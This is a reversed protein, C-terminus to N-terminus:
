KVKRFLEAGAVKRPFPNFNTLENTAAAKRKPMLVAEPFSPPHPGNEPDPCMTMGTGFFRIWQWEVINPYRKYILSRGLTSNDKSDVVVYEIVTLKHGVKSDYRALKYHYTATPEDLVTVIWEGDTTRKVHSIKGPVTTKREVFNFGTKEYADVAQPNTIRGERRPGTVIDNYYGAAEVRRAVHVGADNCLESFNWAIWLEEAWPLAVVVPVLVALLPKIWNKREFKVWLLFLIASSIVYFVAIIVYGIISFQLNM